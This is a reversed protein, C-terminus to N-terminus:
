ERKKRMQEGFGRLAKEFEGKSGEGGKIAVLRCQDELMNRAADVVCKDLVEDRVTGRHGEFENLWLKIVTAWIGGREERQLMKSVRIALIALQDDDLAGDDRAELYPTILGAADVQHCNHNKCNSFYADIARQDKDLQTLQRPLAPHPSALNTDTTESGKGQHREQDEEGSKTSRIIDLGKLGKLALFIRRSRANSTKFTTNAHLQIRCQRNSQPSSQKSTRLASSETPCRGHEQILRKPPSTEQTRSVGPHLRM